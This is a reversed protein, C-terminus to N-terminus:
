ERGVLAVGPTRDVRGAAKAHRGQSVWARGPTREPPLRGPRTTLCGIIDYDKCNYYDQIVIVAHIFVFASARWEGEFFFFL